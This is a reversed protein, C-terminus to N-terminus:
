DLLLSAAKIMQCRVSAISYFFSWPTPSGPPLCPSPRNSVTLLSGTPKHQLHTLRTLPPRSSGRAISHRATPRWPQPLSAPCSVHALDAHFSLLNFRQAWGKRGKGKNQYWCWWKGRPTELCAKWPLSLLHKGFGMENEEEQAGLLNCKREGKWDSKVMHSSEAWCFTYPM